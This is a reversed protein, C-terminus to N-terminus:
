IFEKIKLDLILSKSINGKVDKYIRYILSLIIQNNIMMSRFNLEL